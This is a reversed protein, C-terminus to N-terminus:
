VLALIVFSFSLSFTFSKCINKDEETDLEESDSDNIDSVM